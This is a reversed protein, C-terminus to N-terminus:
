YFNNPNTMELIKKELSLIWLTWGKTNIDLGNSELVQVGLRVQNYPNQIETLVGEKLLEFLDPRSKLASQFKKEVLERADREAAEKMPKGIKYWRIRNEVNLCTGNARERNMRITRELKSSM